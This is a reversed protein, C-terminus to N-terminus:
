NINKIPRNHRDTVSGDTWEIFDEDCDYCHYKISDNDSDVIDYNESGCFPCKSYGESYENNYWEDFSSPQMGKFEPGKHDKKWKSIYEQYLNTLDTLTIVEGPVYFEEEILFNKVLTYAEKEDKAEVTGKDGFTETTFSYYKM